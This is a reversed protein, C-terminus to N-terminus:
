VIGQSISIFISVFVLPKAPILDHLQHASTVTRIAIVFCMVVADMSVFLKNSSVTGM